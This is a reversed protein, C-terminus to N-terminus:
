KDANGSGLPFVSENTEETLASIIKIKVLLM